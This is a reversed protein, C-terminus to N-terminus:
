EKAPILEVNISPMAAKLEDVKSKDDAVWTLLVDGNGNRFEVDCSGKKYLIAHLLTVDSIKIFRYTLDGLYTFRSGFYDKTAFIYEDKSNEVKFAPAAGMQADFEKADEPTKLLEDLDKRTVAAADIKKGKGTLILVLLVIFVAIGILAYLGGKAQEDALAGNRIMMFIMAGILLVPIIVLIKKNGNSANRKGNVEKEYQSFWASQSAPSVTNGM